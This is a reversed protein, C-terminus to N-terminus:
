GLKARVGTVLGRPGPDNELWHAYLQEVRRLREEVAGRLEPHVERGEPLIRHLNELWLSLSARDPFPPLELTHAEPAVESTLTFTAPGYVQYAGWTNGGLGWAAQRALRSADALDDGRLLAKYFATAFARAAEDDVAWGSAVVARAGLATAQWAMSVALGGPHTARTERWGHVTGVHCANFFFLAPASAMAQLERSGLLLDEGLLLGSELPDEANWDGHGAFHVLRWPAGLLAKLILEAPSDVLLEVRWGAAALLKAVEEAEARAGPLLPSVGAPQGIVLASDDAAWPRRWRPNPAGQLRRVVGMRVAPPPERGDPLLEWPLDAITDTVQLTLRDALIESLSVGSPQLLRLLAGVAERDQGHRASDVLRRLLGSQVAQVEERAGAMVGGVWRYRVSGPAGEILLTSGGDRGAPPGGLLGPGEDVPRVERDLAVHAEGSLSNLHECLRCLSLWARRARQEWTEAFRVSAARVAPDLRRHAALVAEVFPAVSDTGRPGACFSALDIVLELPEAQGPDSRRWLDMMAGALADSLATTLQDGGLGEPGLGVVLLAQPSPPPGKQADAVGQVPSYGLSAIRELDLRGRPRRPTPSANPSLGGSKEAPAASRVLLRAEGPQDPLLGARLEEQLLHGWGARDTLGELTGGLETGPQRGIVLVGAVAAPRGWVVGVGLTLGTPGSRGTGLTALLDAPRPLSFLEVSPAPVEETLGVPLGRVEAVRPLGPQLTPPRGGALLAAYDAFYERRMPLDMHGAQPATWVRGAKLLDVDVSRYPATGDGARDHQGRGVGSPTPQSGGAVYVCRWPESAMSLTDLEKRLESAKSLQSGQESKHPGLWDPAALLDIEAQGARQPFRPLLEYLGEMARVQEVLAGRSVCLNAGALLRVLSAEGTLAQAAAHTGLLPVGLLLVRGGGLDVGPQGLLWRVVLGGQSHALLHVARAGDARRKAVAEKLRTGAQVLSRRWDFGFPVVDYGRGHLDDILGQYVWGIPDTADLESDNLDTLRRTLIVPDPWILEGEDELCTGMLGPLVFVAEDRAGVSADRTPSHRLRAERPSAVAGRTDAQAEGTELWSAVLQRVRPQRFYSLHHTGDDLQVFELAPRAESEQPEMRAPGRWMSSTHIVLDNDRTGMLAGMGLDALKEWFGSPKFTAGVALVRPAKALRHSNVVRVLGSDPSLAELGPLDKVANGVRSAMLLLKAVGALWPQAVSALHAVNGLVRLVPDLRGSFLLTGASASAVRVVRKIELNKTSEQLTRWLAAAEPDEWAEQDWSHAVCLADVILGGRSQSVLNVPGSHLSLQEALAVANELPSRSLTPHQFAALQGPELGQLGEFSGPANNATGHVFVTLTGSGPPSAGEDVELGGAGLRAAVLRGDGVEGVRLRDVLAAAALIGARVAERVVAEQLRLVRVEAPLGGRARGGVQEPSEGARFWTRTGDAYLYELLDPVGGDAGDEVQVEVQERRQRDVKARHVVQLHLGPDLANTDGDFLPGPTPTPLAISRLAM